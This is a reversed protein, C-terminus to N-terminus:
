WYWHLAVMISRYFVHKPVSCCLGRPKGERKLVEVLKEFDAMTYERVMHKLTDDSGSQVPVHLFEFVNPHKLIRTIEEVHALMYPPNTMGLRLMVTPPLEDVVQQLLEAINTKIDIGYAGTDESTLWIESVGESIARRLRQLIASPTYSGLKGRAHKTKCYSCSGLCGTSLPIIEVFPNRRIKPLDLSPLGKKALLSVQNGSLTQEVVEVIRHIQSVGVLSCGSLAPLKRDAQPVCGGVVVHKGAAKAEQIAFALADQSPNKVTCSNFVCVSAEQISPTFSYGYSSLLGMMFESDSGNHSCGFTRFFVAQRGPQHSAEAQGLDPFASSSSDAGAPPPRGTRATRRLLQPRVLRTADDTSAGALDELDEDDLDDDDDEDGAQHDQSCGSAKTILVAAPGDQSCCHVPQEAHDNVVCGCDQSASLPEGSHSAVSKDLTGGGGFAPTAASSCSSPPKDGATRSNRTEPELANAAPPVPRQQEQAEAGDANGHPASASQRRRKYHWAALVVAAGLSVALLPLRFSLGARSERM